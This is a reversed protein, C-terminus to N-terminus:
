SFEKGINDNDGCGGCCGRSNCDGGDRDATTRQDLPVELPGALGSREPLCRPSHDPIRVLPASMMSCRPYGSSHDNASLAVPHVVVRIITARTQENGRLRPVRVFLSVSVLPSRESRSLLYTSARDGAWSSTYRQVTSFSASSFRARTISHHFFIESIDEFFCESASDDSRDRQVANSADNKLLRVPFLLLLQLLLM